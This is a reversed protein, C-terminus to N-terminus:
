QAPDGGCAGPWRWDPLLRPPLRKGRGPLRASIGSNGVEEVISDRKM